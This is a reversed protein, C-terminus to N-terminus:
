GAPSVLLYDRKSTPWNKWGICRACGPLYITPAPLDALAAALRAAHKTTNVVCLAQEHAALKHLLVPDPMPGVCTVSARRMSAYLAVPDSMIERIDKLGPPFGPRQALAPQTATCLVVSTGYAPLARLASLCPGLLGVPLTQAEDLIVVSKAIRHLKRCKSPRNAFLSDYFQVATTVIITGDWNETALRISLPAEEREHDAISHHEIVAGPFAKFVDRYIAATQEIISIFPVVIIVRDMGHEVAHKLGFMLSALTKGGGTPVTLSFLGPAWTAAKICNALIDRRQRNVPSDDAGAQLDALHKELAAALQAVSAGAKRRRHKQANLFSETALFDADVLASFLMRVLFSLQFLSDDEALPVALSQAPRLDLLEAPAYPLWDRVDKALRESLPAGQLQQNDPNRYYDALGGHHGAIV